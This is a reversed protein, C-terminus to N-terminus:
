LDSPAEMRILSPENVKLFLVKEVRPSEEWEFIFTSFQLSIVIEPFENLFEYTARTM